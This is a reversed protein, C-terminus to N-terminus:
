FVGRESRDPRAVVGGFRAKALRTMRIAMNEQDTLRGRGTFRSRLSCTRLM